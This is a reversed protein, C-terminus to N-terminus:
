QLIEEIKRELAENSLPMSPKVEPEAKAVLPRSARPKTSAQDKAKAFPPTIFLFRLIEPNISLDHSIATLSEPSGNMHFFGFFAQTEKKIKYALIIKRVPGESVIDFQHQKLLRSVVAPGEETKSLFSIEYNKNDIKETNEM